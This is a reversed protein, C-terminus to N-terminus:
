PRLKDLLGNLTRAEDETLRDHYAQQEATSAESAENILELGKSTIIIAVERRNSPNIHREVLGKQRLKEVLRSTNSMKDIMRETILKLPAAKPFQGRLIRLINFQQSSIGYPKLTRNFSANFQNSTFLLNVMLKEHENAFQKQKIEEELRM